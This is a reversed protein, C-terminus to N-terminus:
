KTRTELIMKARESIMEEPDESLKNLAETSKEDDIVDLIELLKLKNWMNDDNLMTDIFLFANEMDTNFLLEMATKRIEEDPNELCRSFSDTLGRLELPGMMTSIDIGEFVVIEQLLYLLSRINEEEKHLLESIGNLIVSPNSMFKPKLAEDLEPDSGWIRLCSLIIEKDNFESVLLAATKQYQPDAETLTNLIINKMREDFPIDFDYKEKLSYISALLPYVLPGEIENLESLLFFFISEDGILGFSEIISFKTLDDENKYIIQMFELAKKSGIKGMAEIVTPKFLENQEYVKAIYDLCKENKINGLAEVCALVINDDDTVKLLDLIPDGAKPDQILGLIDVVFKKDDHDGKPIYGILADVAGEGIKLLVEGALNRVSIDKSSVLDVVNAPITPNGNVTLAMSVVNRVGKDEDELFSCVKHTIEENWEEFMISEVAATREAPDESSLSKLVEESKYVEEM